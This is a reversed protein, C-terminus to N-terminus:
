PYRQITLTSKKGQFDMPIPWDFSPHSQHEELKETPNELILSLTM